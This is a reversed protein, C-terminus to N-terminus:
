WLIGVALSLNESESLGAYVPPSLASHPSLVLPNHRLGCRHGELNM